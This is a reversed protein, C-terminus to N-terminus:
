VELSSVRCFFIRCCAFVCLPLLIGASHYLVAAQELSVVECDSEMSLLEVLTDVHRGLFNTRIVSLLRIAMLCAAM